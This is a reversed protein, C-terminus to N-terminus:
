GGEMINKIGASSVRVMAVPSNDTPNIMSNVLSVMAVLGNHIAVDKDDIINPAGCEPCPKNHYQEIEGLTKFGCSDCLITLNELTMVESM